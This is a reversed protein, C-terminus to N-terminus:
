IKHLYDQKTNQYIQHAVKESMLVIMHNISALEGEGTIKFAM